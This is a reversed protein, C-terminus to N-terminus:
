QQPNISGVGGMRSFPFIITRVKGRIDSVPVSGGTLFDQDPTAPDDTMHFRSDSSNSRNDGMVWVAGDPIKYPGFDPGLCSGLGPNQLNMDIYPERLAKGDVKVGVGEANRCSVTQGGVAIVRKVYDNEDPPAFGFWSLVDQFKHVVANSSRTSLYPENWSDPVKFVVVDGPQPDGFRYALKDTIIRDNSCGTCGHLTSEMSESPIVYQRGVFTTLVFMVVLVASVIVVTERLFTSGKSRGKGKGDAADDKTHWPKATSDSSDEARADESDAVGRALPDSAEPHTGDSSHKGHSNAM